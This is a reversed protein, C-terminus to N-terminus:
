YQPVCAAPMDSEEILFRGSLVLEPINYPVQEVYCNHFQINATFRNCTLIIRTTLAVRGQQM